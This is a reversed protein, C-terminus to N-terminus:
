FRYLANIFVSRVSAGSPWHTGIALRTGGYASYARMTTTTAAVTVTIPTTAAGFIMAAVPTERSANTFPLGGFELGGSASTYNVVVAIIASAMVLRGSRAWVGSQTNYTVALDGPTQCTVTPTWTGTEEAVLIRGQSAMKIYLDNTASDGPWVVAGEPYTAFNTASGKPVIFSPIDVTAEAFEFTDGPGVRLKNAGSREILADGGLNVGAFQPTDTTALALLQRAQTPTLAEVDGTGATLRGLITATAIDQLLELPVSYTGPDQIVGSPNVGVVGGGTSGDLIQGVALKNTIAPM